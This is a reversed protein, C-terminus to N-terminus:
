EAGQENEEREAVEDFPTRDDIIEGGKFTERYAKGPEGKRGGKAPLLFYPVEMRLKKVEIRLDPLRNSVTGQALGLSEAAKTRNGDADRLALFLHKSKPNLKDAIGGYADLAVNFPQQEARRKGEELRRNEAVAAGLADRALQVADRRGELINEIDCVQRKEYPTLPPMGKETEDVVRIQIKLVGAESFKAKNPSIIEEVVGLSKLAGCKKNLDPYDKETVEVTVRFGRFILEQFCRRVKPGRQWQDIEEPTRPPEGEPFSGFIIAGRKELPWNRGVLLINM